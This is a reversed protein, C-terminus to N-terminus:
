ERCSKRGGATGRVCSTRSKGGQFVARGIDRPARSRTERNRRRAARPARRCYACPQGPAARSHDRDVGSGDPKRSKARCQPKWGRSRAGYRACIVSTISLRKKPSRSLSRDRVPSRTAFLLSSTRARGCGKDDSRRQPARARKRGWQTGAPLLVAYAAEAQEVCRREQDRHGKLNYAHATGKQGLATRQGVKLM